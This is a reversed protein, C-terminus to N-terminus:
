WKVNCKRLNEQIVINTVVINHYIKYHTVFIVKHVYM